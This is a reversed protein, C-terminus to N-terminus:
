ITASVKDGNNTVESTELLESWDLESTPIIGNGTRNLNTIEEQVSEDQLKAELAMIALQLDTESHHYNSDFQYINRTIRSMFNVADILEEFNTIYCFEGEPLPFAVHSFLEKWTNNIHLKSFSCFLQHSIEIFLTIFDSISKDSREILRVSSTITSTLERLLIYSKDPSLQGIGTTLSSDPYLCKYCFRKDISITSNGIFLKRNNLLEEAVLAHECFHKYHALYLDTNNKQETARIQTKTNAIQENAKTIQLATQKTGHLRATLVALPISLALLGLPLKSIDIFHNFGKASIDFGIWDWAWVGTSLFLGIPAVIAVWFLPQSGLGHYADFTSIFKKFPM